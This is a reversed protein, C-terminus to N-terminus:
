GIFDFLSLGQVLVYSQQSAQYTMLQMQLRSSAEVYDLDEVRSLNEEAFLVFTENVGRQGDVANLRSGVQNRVQSVNEMAQDINNLFIGLSNDLETRTNSSELVVVLDDVMDFLDQNVSRSVDFVDGPDPQGQLLVKIGDFTIGSNETYVTASDPNGDPPDVDVADTVNHVLYVLEGATNNAFTITYTDNDYLSGDIVGGIGAVGSGTNNPDNQVHFTGNGNKIQMFIESGPVSDAVQTTGSIQISREGQDGSYVYNGATNVAFPQTGTHNGAFLYDNNGDRSNALSMINSLRDRVERALADRETQTYTANGSQVALERIRQVENMVSGLTTDVLRLRSEAAQINDQYQETLQITSQYDLIRKSDAPNDSPSLIAKGTALQLQTKAMEVQADNIAGTAQRQMQLNSIRM